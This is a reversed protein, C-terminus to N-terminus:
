EDVNESLQSLLDDKEVIIDSYERLKTRLSSSGEDDNPQSNQLDRNKQRHYRTLEQANKKENRIESVKTKLNEMKEDKSVLQKRLSTVEKDKMTLEEQLTKKCDKQREIADSRRKLQRELNRCDKKQAECKTEFKSKKETMTVLSQKVECLDKALSNCASVTSVYLTHSTSSEKGKLVCETHKEKLDEQFSGGNKSEPLHFSLLKMVETKKDKSLKQAKKQLNKIHSTIAQVSPCVEDFNAGYYYRLWIMMSQWALNKKQMLSFMELIVGQCLYKGTEKNRFLTLEQYEVPSTASHLISSVKVKCVPCTEVMLTWQRICAFCFCHMCDRIYSNNECEGLCVPCQENGPSNSEPLPLSIKVPETPCDGVDPINPLDNLLSLLWDTSIGNRSCYPGPYEIESDSM